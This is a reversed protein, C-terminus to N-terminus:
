APCPIVQLHLINWSGVLAPKLASCVTDFLPSPLLYTSGLSQYLPSTPIPIKNWTFPILTYSLSHAAREEERDELIGSSFGMTNVTNWQTFNLFKSLLFGPKCIQIQAQLCAISILSKGQRSYPIVCYNGVPQQFQQQQIEKDGARQICSTQKWLLLM